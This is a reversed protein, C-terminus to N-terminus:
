NLFQPLGVTKRLNAIAIRYMAKARSHRMHAETLRTEVDILHSSLVLGEKFRARSLRAGEEALEVMKSTVKERQEAQRLEQVAQQLEYNLQLETKRRQEHLRAIDAKKEATDADRRGGEFLAYNLRIGAMWSDGDGDNEFGYEYQYTAFGDIAPLYDSRAIALAEEAAAIASEIARLEPRATYILNEPVRQQTSDDDAIQVPGEPIGLLNNFGHQSLILTHRAQILDERARAEQVELDLLNERLLDGAQHRAKAAHLSVQIAQLAATRTEVMEQALVIQQFSRVVAFALQNIVSQYDARIREHDYKSAALAASIKGGSYLRYQLEAQIKLDDTRGPDNFDIDSDFAGQNLINGFSYMPNNTQSYDTKLFFQPYLRSDAQEIRAKAASIRYSAIRSDPSNELAYRVADEMTWLQPRPAEDAFLPLPLTCFLSVLTLLATRKISMHSIIAQFLIMYYEHKM